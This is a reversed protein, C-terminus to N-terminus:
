KAKQVKKPEWWDTCYELPDYPISDTGKWKKYLDSGCHGPNDDKGENWYNCNACCAGGKPVKMGAKHDEPLVYEGGGYEELLDIFKTM